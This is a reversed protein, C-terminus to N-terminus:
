VGLDCHSYATHDGNTTQTCCRCPSSSRFMGSLARLFRSESREPEAVAPWQRIFVGSVRDPPESFGTPESLDHQNVSSESRCGSVPHGDASSQSVTAVFPRSLHIFQLWHLPVHISGFVSSLCPPSLELAHANLRGDLGGALGGSVAGAPEASTNGSHLWGSLGTQCPSFAQKQRHPPTCGVAVSIM